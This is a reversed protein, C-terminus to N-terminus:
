TLNITAITKTFAGIGQGNMVGIQIQYYTIGLHTAVGNSSLTQSVTFNATLVGSNVSISETCMLVSSMAPNAFRVITNSFDGQALFDDIEEQSMMYPASSTANKVGEPITYIKAGGGGQGIMEKLVRGQNASLAATTSDSELNDIVEVGASPQSPQSPTGTPDIWVKTGVPPTDSGVYVEETSGGGGISVKKWEGEPTKYKITAM